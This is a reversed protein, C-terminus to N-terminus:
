GYADVDHLDMKKLKKKSAIRHSAIRHSAINEAPSMVVNSDFSALAVHETPKHYSIHSHHLCLWM